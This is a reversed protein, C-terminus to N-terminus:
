CFHFRNTSHGEPNINRDVCLLLKQQEHQKIITPVARRPASSKNEQPPPRAGRSHIYVDVQETHGLQAGVQALYSTTWSRLPPGSSPLLM